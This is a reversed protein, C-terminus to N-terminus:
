LNTPNPLQVTPQLAGTELFTMVTPASSVRCMSSRRSEKLLRRRTSSPEWSSRSRGQSRCHRNTDRLSDVCGCHEQQYFEERKSIEIMRVSRGGCNDLYFRYDAEGSFIATRNIGRLIIHQPQGPIIFRPLRAVTIEERIKSFPVIERKQRGVL